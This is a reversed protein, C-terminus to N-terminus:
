QIRVQLAAPEVRVVSLGEFSAEFRVPVEHVGARLDALDVFVDLTRADLALVRDGPGHLTITVAAPQLRARRGPEVNRLRVPVAAFTREIPASVIEITVTATRGERLRLASDAVGVTVVDKVSRVADQISIPETTAETLRRLRSEPGIVEVTAPEAVVKGM